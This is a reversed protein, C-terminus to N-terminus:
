SLYDMGIISYFIDVVLFVIFTWTLPYTIRLIFLIILTLYNLKKTLILVINIIIYVIPLVASYVWYFDIYSIDPPLTYIEDLEIAFKFEIVFFVISLIYLIKKFLSLDKLYRFVGLFYNKLKAM